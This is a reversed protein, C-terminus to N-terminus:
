GMGKFYVTANSVGQSVRKPMFLEMDTVTRLMPQAEPSPIMQCNEQLLDLTYFTATKALLQAVSELNPMLEATQETTTSLERYNSMPRFKNEIKPVAM